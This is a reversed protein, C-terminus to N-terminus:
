FIVRLYRVNIGTKQALESTNQYDQYSGGDSMFVFCNDPKYEPDKVGEQTLPNFCKFKTKVTKSLPDSLVELITDGIGIM